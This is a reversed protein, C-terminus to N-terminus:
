QLGIGRRRMWRRRGRIRPSLGDSRQLPASGPSPWRVTMCAWIRNTEARELAVVNPFTTSAHLSRPSPGAFNIAFSPLAVYTVSVPFRGGSGPAILKTNKVLSSISPNAQSASPTQLQPTYSISSSYSSPTEKRLNWGLRPKPFCQCM